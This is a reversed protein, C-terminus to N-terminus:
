AVRTPSRVALCGEFAAKELAGDVDRPAIQLANVRLVDVKEQSNDILWAKYAQLLQSQADM